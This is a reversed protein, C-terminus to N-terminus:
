SRQTLSAIIDGEYSVSARESLLFVLRFNGLKSARLLALSPGLLAYNPHSNRYGSLGVMMYARPHTIGAM